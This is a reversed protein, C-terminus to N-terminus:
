KKARAKVADIMSPMKPVTTGKSGAAVTPPTQFLFEGSDGPAQGARNAKVQDSMSPMKPASKQTKQASMKLRRAASNAAQVRVAHENRVTNFRARSADDLRMIMAM